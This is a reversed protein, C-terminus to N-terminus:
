KGQRLAVVARNDFVAGGARSRVYFNFFPPEIYFTKMRTGLRDFFSYGRRFDGYLAIPVNATGNAAVAASTASVSSVDQTEWDKTSDAHARLHVVKEGKLNRNNSGMHVAWDRYLLAGEADKLAAYRAFTRRNMLLCANMRYEVPDLLVIDELVSDARM